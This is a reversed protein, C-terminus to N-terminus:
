SKIRLSKLSKRQKESRAAATQKLRPPLPSARHVTAYGHPSGELGDVLKPDPAGFNLVLTKVTAGSAQVSETLQKFASLFQLQWKRDGSHLRCLDESEIIVFSSGIKCLIRCLLDLWEQEAHNSKLKNLNFGDHLDHLINSHRRITQCVLSRLINEISPTYDVSSPQSLTYLTERHQSQIHSILEVALSKTAANARSGSQLMLLSSGPSTGWWNLAAMVSGVDFVYGPKKQRNRSLVQQKHLNREPDVPPSLQVLIERQFCYIDRSGAPPKEVLSKTAIGVKLVHDIKQECNMTYRGIQRVGYELRQLRLDVDDVGGRVDRVVGHMDRLEAWSAHSALSAITDAANKVHQLTDRYVVDFPSVISLLLRTASRHKYWPIVNVFFKLIYAYLAAVAHKM